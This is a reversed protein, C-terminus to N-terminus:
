ELVGKEVCVENDYYNKEKVVYTGMDHIWITDPLFKAGYKSKHIISIGDKEYAYIMQTNNKMSVTSVVKVSDNWTRIIYNDDVSNCSSVMFAAFILLLIKKM